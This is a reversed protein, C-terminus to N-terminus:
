RPRKGYNRRRKEMYADIGHMVAWFEKSGVAEQADEIAKDLQKDTHEEIRQKKAM